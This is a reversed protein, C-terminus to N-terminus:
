ETREGNLERLCVVRCFSALSLGMSKAYHRLREKDKAEIHFHIKEEMGKLIVM